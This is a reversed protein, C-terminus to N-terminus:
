KPMKLVKYFCFVTMGLVALQVFVALFLATNNM